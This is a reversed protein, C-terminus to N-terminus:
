VHYPTRIKAHNLLAKTGLTTWREQVPKIREQASGRSVPDPPSSAGEAGILRIRATRGRQLVPSVRASRHAVSPPHCHCIAHLDVEITFHAQIENWLSEHNCRRAAARAAVVVLCQDMSRRRVLRHREASRGRSILACDCWSRPRCGSRHTM